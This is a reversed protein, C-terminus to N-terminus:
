VLVSPQDTHQSPQPVKPLSIKHLSQMIYCATSQQIPHPAPLDHVSLREVAVRM